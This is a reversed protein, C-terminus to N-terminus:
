GKNISGSGSVKSDETKPNGRFSIGGSGTVRAKLNEKAFVEADGSGNVSIETNESELGYAELDGSGSVKGTFSSTKGKLNLDGSGSLEVKVSKANVNLTIEGSGSLEAFFDGVNIVSKSEISGSGVLTVAELKKIPVQIVVDINRYRKGNELYINLKGNEVETKIDKIIDSDKSNIVLDGSTVLEIEFSGRVSLKTFDQIKRKEQASSAIITFLATILLAAKKM